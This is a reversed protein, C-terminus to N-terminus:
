TTSTTTTTSPSIELPVSKQPNGNGYSIESIKATVTNWLFNNLDLIYDTNSQGNKTLIPPVIVEVQENDNTKTIGDLIFSGKNDTPKQVTVSVNENYIFRDYTPKIWTPVGSDDAYLFSSRTTEPVYGENETTAFKWFNDSAGLIKAVLQDENTLNSSDLVVKSSLKIQNSGNENFTWFDIWEEYDQNNNLNPNPNKFKHTLKQSM